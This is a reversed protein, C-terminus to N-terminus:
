LKERIAQYLSPVIGTFQPNLSSGDQGRLVFFFSGAVRLGESVVNSYEHNLAKL